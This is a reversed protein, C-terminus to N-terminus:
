HDALCILHPLHGLVVTDRKERRQKQEKKRNEMTSPFARAGIIGFNLIRIHM